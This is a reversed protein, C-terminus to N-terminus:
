RTSASERKPFAFQNRTREATPAGTNKRTRTARARRRGSLFSVHAIAGGEVGLERPVDGGRLARESDQQRAEAGDRRREDGAHVQDLLPLRPGEARQRLHLLQAEALARVRAEHRDLLEHGQGLRAVEDEAAPVDKRVVGVLRRDLGADHRRLHERRHLRLERRERRPGGDELAGPDAVEVAGVQLLRRRLHVEGLRERLVDLVEASSRRRVARDHDPAARRLDVRLGRGHVLRQRGELLPKFSFEGSM